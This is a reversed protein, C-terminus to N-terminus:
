CKAYGRTSRRQCSGSRAKRGSRLDGAGCAGSRPRYVFDGDRPQLPQPSKARAVFINGGFRCNGTTILCESNDALVVGLRYTYGEDRRATEDTFSKKDPAILRGGNLLDLREFAGTQRYLRYGAVEEDSLVDWMLDVGVAGWAADFGNIFVPVPNEIPIIWHVNTENGALGTMYHMSDEDAYGCYTRFFEEQECDHNIYVVEGAGVDVPTGPNCPDVVVGTRPGHVATERGAVGTSPDGDLNFWAGDFTLKAMAANEKLGELGDGVVLAVQFKVSEGPPLESFPGVSLLVRHDRPILTNSEITEQSLIEYREFDNTPDGGEEYSQDGSFNAFTSTSVHLPANVGFPDTTHGLLVVGLYSTAQGGDGDVDYAYAMDFQTPGLPTCVAVHTFASADDAYYNPTDRHGIDPDAFFAIFVDDLVVSGINTITFEIGVFDDFMPHAWQYSEQRVMIDLPNHDPYIAIAEPTNDAFWCSFMQDSIAAFDEDIMGDLDDDHGNLWDEDVMGDGDDDADVSPYRNGGLAGEASRYIIDVPDATPRFESAFISTSVGPVGLKLAGVWLGGAYLHEIRSGVPWEASPADAFPMGSGPMSGFLGWNGVHVGLEGVNHVNSGDVVLVGEPGSRIGKSFDIPNAGTMLFSVLVLALVFSLRRSGM